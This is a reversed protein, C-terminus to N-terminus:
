GGPAGETRSLRIVPDRTMAVPFWDRLERARLSELPRKGSSMFHTWCAFPVAAAGRCNVLYLQPLASDAVSRSETHMLRVFEAITAEIWERQGFCQTAVKLLADPVEGDLGLASWYYPITARADAPSLGPIEYCQGPFLHCYEPVLPSHVIASTVFAAVPVGWDRIKHLLSWVSSLGASLHRRDIGYVALMGVHLGALIQRLHAEHSRINTFRESRYLQTDEVDDIADCINLYLDAPFPREPMRVPLLGIQEISASSECITGDPFREFVHKHEFFPGIMAQMASLLKVVQMTCPATVLLSQPIAHVATSRAVEKYGWGSWGVARFYTRNIESLSEGYAATALWIMELMREVVELETLTPVFVRGLAYLQQLEPLLCDIVSAPPELQAADMLRQSLAKRPQGIPPLRNLLFSRATLDTFIRAPQISEPPAPVQVRGRRNM